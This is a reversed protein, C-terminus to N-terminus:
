GEGIVPIAILSRIEDPFWDKQYIAIAVMINDAEIVIAERAGNVILAFKM